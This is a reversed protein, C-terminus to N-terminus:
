QRGWEQGRSLIEQLAKVYGQTAQSTKHHSFLNRKQGAIADVHSREVHNKDLPIRSALLALGKPEIKQTLDTVLQRSIADDKWLTILCGLVHISRGTLASMVNVTKVLLNVGEEAYPSASVPVLVCHSAALASRTFLGMSPGTDIVIWDFPRADLNPPPIIDPAHLDRVFRAEAGPGAAVGADSHTVERSSPILWVRKFQTQRILSALTRRRAFYDGLHGPIANPAQVPLDRTLNAQADTDVLLVQQDLAALGFALNLASTTKGVGGKHNAMTLVTTMSPDRFTIEDAALLAEPPIPVLPNSRLRPDPETDESAAERTGRMYNIYRVLHNGDVPWIRPPREVEVRAAGNLTSTTVVYGPLGRLAGHFHTMQPGTIQVNPPRFHKINVGASYVRENAPGVYLRLDLGDGYRGAADEVFYGAQEFVYKVFHEFEHDNLDDLMREISPENFFPAFDPEPGPLQGM